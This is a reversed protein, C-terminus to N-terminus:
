PVWWNIFMEIDYIAPGNTGNGYAVGVFYFPTGDDILAQLTEKVDARCPFPGGPILDVPCGPTYLAASTDNAAFFAIVRCGILEVEANSQSPCVFIGAGTNFGTSNAAWVVQVSASHILAGNEKWVDFPAAVTIATYAASPALWQQRKQEPLPRAGDKYLIIQQPIVGATVSM